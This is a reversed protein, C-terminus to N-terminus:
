TSTAIRALAITYDFSIHVAQASLVITRMGTSAVIGALAIKQQLLIHADQASMLGTGSM